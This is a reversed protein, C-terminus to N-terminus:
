FLKVIKFVYFQAKLYKLRYVSHLKKFVSNVNEIECKLHKWYLSWRKKIIFSKLAENNYEAVMEFDGNNIKLIFKM